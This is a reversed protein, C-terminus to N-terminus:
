LTALLTDILARIDDQAACDVIWDNGDPGTGTECGDVHRRLHELKTRADALDGALIDEEANELQSEIANRHGPARFAADALSAVADGVTDPDGNDGLGDGDSDAWETPDDPFADVDDPVGDGDRDLIPAEYTAFVLDTIVGKSAFTFPEPDPESGCANWPEGAAYSNSENSMWYIEYNPLELFVTGGNPVPVPAPFEFDVANGLIGPTPLSTTASGLIPGTVSDSRVHMTVARGEADSGYLLGVTFGVWEDVGPTISQVLGGPAGIFCSRAFATSTDGDWDNQQDIVWHSPIAGAPVAMVAGLATAAVAMAARKTWSLRM